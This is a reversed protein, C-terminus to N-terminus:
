NLNKSPVAHDQSTGALDQSLTLFIKVSFELNETGNILCATVAGRIRSQIMYM